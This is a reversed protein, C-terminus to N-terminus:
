CSPHLICTSEEFLDDRVSATLTAAHQLIVCLVRAASLNRKVLLVKGANQASDHGILQVLVRKAGKM